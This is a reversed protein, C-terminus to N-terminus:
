NKTINRKKDNTKLDLRIIKEAISEAFVKTIGIDGQEKLMTIYKFRVFYFGDPFRIILYAPLPPTCFGDCPKQRQDQDSLKWVLGENELAQLGDWQVKEIKSFSFTNAQCNKLEYYCHFRKERFYSNLLINDKAENKKM